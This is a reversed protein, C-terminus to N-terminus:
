VTVLEAVFVSVDVTVLVGVLVMVLVGVQPGQLTAWVIKPWDDATANLPTPIMNM